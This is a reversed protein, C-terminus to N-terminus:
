KGLIHKAIPEGFDRFSIIFGDDHELRGVVGAFYLGPQKASQHTDDLKLRTEHGEQYEEVMHAVPAINPHFGTCIIPKEPTTVRKGDESELVYVTDHKYIRKVRFQEVIEVMGQMELEKVFQMNEKWLCDIPMPIQYERSVLMKIKRGPRALQMVVGSAGNASGVVAIEKADLNSLYPLKAYHVYCGEMDMNENPTSYMGAAWILHRCELISEDRLTLVFLQADPNFIVSIVETNNQVPINRVAAVHDLYRQYMIHNPHPINPFVESTDVRAIKNDDKTPSSESLLHTDTPYDLWAQGVEGRDIVLMEDPKM